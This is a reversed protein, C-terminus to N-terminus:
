ELINKQGTESEKIKKLVFKLIIQAQKVAFAADAQELVLYDNPYRFKTSYPNLNDAADFLSRFEGDLGMCMELLQILDHTRKIEQKKFILYGKLAKEAAQQSDFVVGRARRGLSLLDQAAGLDDNAMEFWEEHEPALYWKDKLDPM